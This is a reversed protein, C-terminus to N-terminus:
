EGAQQSAPSTATSTPQKTLQDDNAAVVAAAGFSIATDAENFVQYAPYLSLILQSLWTSM